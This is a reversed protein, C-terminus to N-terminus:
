RLDERCYGPDPNPTSFHAVYIDWYTASTAYSTLEFLDTVALVTLIFNLPSRLHKRTLVAINVVCSVISIEM